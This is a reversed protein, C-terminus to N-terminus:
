NNSSDMDESQLTTAFTPMTSMAPFFGGFFKVLPGIFYFQHTMDTISVTVNLPLSFQASNGIYPQGVFGLDNTQYTITVNQPQLRPFIVKMRDFIGTGNSNTFATSDFGFTNPTCATSTCVTPPVSPCNVNNGMNDFCPQGILQLQSPTYSLDTIKTAVPDSVVATRAGMYAAKNALAWEYFMYTVDITGLVLLLFMPLVITTEVLVSGSIDRLLKSDLKLRRM